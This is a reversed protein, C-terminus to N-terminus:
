SSGTFGAKSGISISGSHEVSRTIMPLNLRSVVRRQDLATRCGSDLTSHVDKVALTSSQEARDPLYFHGCPWRERSLM